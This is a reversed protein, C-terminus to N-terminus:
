RDKAAAVGDNGYTEKLKMMKRRIVDRKLRSLYDVFLKGDLHDIEHQLAVAFLGQAHLTFPEGRRNQAKVTVQARRKISENVGPLSLCGEEWSIDGSAAEIEPNILTVPEEFGWDRLQERYEPTSDNDPNLDIVVVRQDVAVQTAALGIGQAAYMTEFMSNVLDQTEKGFSEVPEAIRVLAEDPWIRIKMTAM